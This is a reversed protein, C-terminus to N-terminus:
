SKASLRAMSSRLLTVFNDHHMITSFRERGHRFEIRLADEEIDSHWAQIAVFNRLPNAFGGRCRRNAQDRDRAPALLAVLSAGTGRAKIMVERLRDLGIPQALEQAIWCQLPSQTERSEAQRRQVAPV